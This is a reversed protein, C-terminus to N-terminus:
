YAKQISGQDKDQFEAVEIEEIKIDEDGPIDWYKEKSLLIRMRKRLKKEETTLIDGPRRSLTDPKRGKKGQRYIIKFNYQSLFEQWRRQPESLEKKTM